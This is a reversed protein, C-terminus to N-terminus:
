GGFQVGLLLRLSLSARGSLTAVGADVDFALGPCPGELLTAGLGIRGGFGVEGQGDIPAEVGALIRVQRAPDRRVLGLSLSPTLMSPVGSRWPAFSWALGPSVVLAPSWALDAQASLVAPVAALAQWAPCITTAPDDCAASGGVAAVGAQLRLAPAAQAPTPSALLAAALALAALHTTRTM